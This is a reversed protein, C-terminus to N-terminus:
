SVDIDQQRTKWLAMPHNRVRDALDKEFLLDPNYKGTNFQNIFEKERESFNTLSSLFSIVRTEATEFDFKETKKLVPMLSSRINKFMISNISIFDYETRPKRSGGVALYFIYIKRLLDCDKDNFLKNVIMNYVDFLDRCAARETLAKIKSAFLEIPSLTKVFINNLFPITVTKKEIPLVHCRMSYNIEIKINDLNGVSNSYSFIWSDLSLPSKGGNHESYGNTVMFGNIQQRIMQRDSMMEDKSVNRSFDLDLDVSLRPMEFVTLNIATGGKLVLRESLFTNNNIFYLVDILRLVKELNDRIFGTEAALKSIENKNYMM